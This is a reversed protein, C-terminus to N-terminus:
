RRRLWAKVAKETRRNRERLPRAWRPYVADPLPVFPLLVIVLALFLLAAIPLAVLMLYTGVVPLATMTFCWCMGGIVPAGLVTMREDRRFSGFENGMWTRAAPSRGRRARVSYGILALGIVFTGASVLLRTLM